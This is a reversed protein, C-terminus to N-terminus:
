VNDFAEFYADENRKLLLGLVTPMSQTNTLFVGNGPARHRRQTLYSIEFGVSSPIVKKNYM